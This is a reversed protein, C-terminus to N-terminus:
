VLESSVSQEEPVNHLKAPKQSSSVSSDYSRDQDKFAKNINQHDVFSEKNEQLESNAMDQYKKWLLISFEAWAVEGLQDNISNLLLFGDLGLFSAFKGDLMRCSAKCSMDTQKSCIVTALKRDRVSPILLRTTLLLVDAMNIMLLLISYVALFFFITQLVLNAPYMCPVNVTVINGTDVSYSCKSYTRVPGDHDPEAGRRVHSFPDTFILLSMFISLSILTNLLKRALTLIFSVSNGGCTLIMTLTQVTGELNKLQERDSRVYHRQVENVIMRINIGFWRQLQYWLLSPMKILFAVIALISPTWLITSPISKKNLQAASVRDNQFNDHKGAYACMTNTFDVHPSVFHAPTHCVAPPVIIPLALAALALFLLLLFTWHSNAEDVIDENRTTAM